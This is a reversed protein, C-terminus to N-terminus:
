LAAHTRLMHCRLDLCEKGNARSVTSARKHKYERPSLRVYAVICLYDDLSLRVHMLRRAYFRLGLAASAIVFTVTIGAYCEGQRSAMPCTHTPCANTSAVPGLLM